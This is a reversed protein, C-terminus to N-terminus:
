TTNSSDFLISWTENDSITFSTVLNNGPYGIDLVYSNKNDAISESNGIKTVKFYSGGLENRNDDIISM